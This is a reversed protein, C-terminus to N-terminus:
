EPLHIKLRLLLLFHLRSHLKNKHLIEPKKAGRVGQLPCFGARYDLASVQLAKKDSTNPCMLQDETFHQQQQLRRM